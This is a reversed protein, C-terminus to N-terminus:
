QTGGATAEAEALKDVCPLCCEAFEDHDVRTVQTERHCRSCEGDHWDTM